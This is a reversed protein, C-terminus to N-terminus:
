VGLVVTLFIWLFAPIFWKITRAQADLCKGLTPPKDTFIYYFGNGVTLVIIPTFGIINSIILGLIEPSDMSLIGDKGAFSGAIATASGMVFAIFYYKLRAKLNFNKLSTKISKLM